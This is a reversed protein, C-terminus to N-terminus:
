KKPLLTGKLGNALIVERLNEIEKQEKQMFDETFVIGEPNRKIWPAEPRNEVALVKSLILILIKRIPFKKIVTIEEICDQSITPAM